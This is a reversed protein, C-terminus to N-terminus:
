RLPYKLIEALTQALYTKGTGTNGILLINSKLSWMRNRRTSRIRKYHNYVGVTLARKAKEQGIVYQDLEEKLQVPTLM